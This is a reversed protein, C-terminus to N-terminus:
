LQGMAKFSYHAEAGIIIHDHLTLGLATAAQKLQATFTVDAPSPKPAGNPHNHSLILGAANHALASKLVDRPSASVHELTGMFLTEEALLHLQSNLYLVVVEERSSAAFRTYLYDLLALTNALVPNQKLETKGIRLALQRCVQLLAISHEGMGETNKLEVVSANLVGQLTGFTRLLDKALPKVDRRPIAFMLALELLEYDAVGAGGTELFRSKLRARHGEADSM